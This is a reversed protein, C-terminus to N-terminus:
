TRFTGSKLDSEYKGVHAIEPQTYTVWPIVRDSYKEQGGFVANKCVMVGTEGAMHTFKEALCVDGVAYIDPNSTRLFDDVEVGHRRDFKVNVRELGIGDVNPARGTAILLIDCKTEEEKKTKIGNRLSKKKKLKKEM